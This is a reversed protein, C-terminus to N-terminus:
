VWILFTSSSALIMRWCGSDDLLRWLERELQDVRAKKADVWLQAQVEGDIELDRTLSQAAESVDERPCAMNPGSGLAPRRTVETERSRLQVQDSHSLESSEEQDQGAQPSAM